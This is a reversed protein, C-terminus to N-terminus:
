DGFAWSYSADNGNDWRVTVSIMVTTAPIGALRDGRIELYHHRTLNGEVFASAREIHSGDPLSVQL